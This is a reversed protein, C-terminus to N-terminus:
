EDDLSSLFGNIENIIKELMAVAEGHNALKNNITAEYKKDFDVRSQDNWAAVEDNSNM